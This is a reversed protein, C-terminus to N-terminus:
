YFESDSSHQSDVGNRDNLYVESTQQISSSYQTTEGNQGTYGPVSKLKIDNPHKFFFLILFVLINYMGHAALITALCEAVAPNPACALAPTLGVADVAM